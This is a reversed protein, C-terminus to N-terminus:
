SVHVATIANEIFLNVTGSTFHNFTVAADGSLGDGVQTGASVWSNLVHSVNVTDTADGRIYLSQSTNMAAVSTDDLNLTGGSDLLLDIKEINKVSVGAVGSAQTIDLLNMNEIELSNFGGGGDLVNNDAPTFLAQNNVLLVDNGAGGLLQNNTATVMSLIETGGAGANFDGNLNINLLLSLTDSSGLSGDLINHSVNLETMIATAGAEAGNKGAGGNATSANATAEISLNDIGTGGTLINGQSMLDGGVVAEASISTGSAAFNAFFNGDGGTATADITMTTDAAGHETMHNGQVEAFAGTATGGPTIPPGNDYGSVGGTFAGKGGHALDTIQMIDSAGAAGYGDFHNGNIEADASTAVGGNLAENAYLGALSSGGEADANISMTGGAAGDSLMNADVLTQASIAESSAGDAVDAGTNVTSGDWPTSGANGGQAFAKIGITDASATSASALTNGDIDVQASIATCGASAYNGFTGGANGGFAKGEINVSQGGSGAGADLINSSVLSEANIQTGSTTNVNGTGTSEGGTAHATVAITDNGAMGLITVSSIVAHATTVTAGGGAETDTVTDSLKDDFNSGQLVDFNGFLTIDGAGGTSQAVGLVGLDITVGAHIDLFSLTTMGTGALIQYMGTGSNVGSYITETGSGATLIYDGAGTDNGGILVDTGSGGTLSYSVGSSEGGILVNNGSSGATSLEYTATPGDNNGGILLNNGAGGSIAYDTGQIVNGGILIDEGSTGQLSYSGGGPANLDGGIMIANGAAATVAELGAVLTSIGNYLVYGFNTGMLSPLSNFAINPISSVPATISGPLSSSTNGVILDQGDYTKAAPSQASVLIGGLNAFPDAGPAELQFMYNMLSGGNFAANVAAATGAGDLFSRVDAVLVDQHYQATDNVDLQQDPTGGDVLTGGDRGSTGDFLHKGTNSVFLNTGGGGSFYYQDFSNGAANAGAILVDNGQAGVMYYIGTGTNAGGELISNGVVLPVPSYGGQANDTAAVYYFNGANNGGILVNSGGEGIVFYGYESGTSLNNGGLIIDNGGNGQLVYYQTNANYEGGVILAGEPGPLSAIWEDSTPDVAGNYLLYTHPDGFQILDVSSTENATPTLVTNVIASVNAAILDTGDIAGNNVGQVQIGSTLSLNYNFLQSNAALVAIGLEAASDTSVGAIFDRAVTNGDMNKAGGLVDASYIATNGEGPGAGYIMDNGLGGTVSDGPNVVFVDNTDTGNITVDLTTSVPTATLDDSETIGYTFHLTLTEGAPLFDFANNKILDVSGDANIILEAAMPSAENNLVGTPTISFHAIEGAGLAMPAVTVDGAYVNNLGDLGAGAFTRGIFAAQVVAETDLPDVNTDNALVNGLLLTASTVTDDASFSDPNAVPLPDTVDFTITNTAIPDGANYIDLNKADITVVYIGAEATITGTINGKGDISLGAPLHNSPDVTISLPDDSTFLSSAAINISNNEAQTVTIPANTAIENSADNVQLSFSETASKGPDSANAPDTNTATVMVTYSGIQPDDPNGTIVGTNPNITFGSPLGTASFVLADDTEIHSFYTSVNLSYPTGETATQPLIPTATVVDVIDHVTLQFSNTASKHADFQNAPDTNTATLHITATGIQPDDPTGSIIGTVPNYHLWSPLGSLSLTDGVDTHSFLQSINISFLSGETASQPALTLPTVVETVDKQVLLTMVEKFGCQIITETYDLYTAGAFGEYSHFTWGTGMNIVDFAGAKVIMTDITHTISNVEKTFDDVGLANIDLTNHQALTSTNTFNNTLDLEDFGTVVPGSHCVGGLLNVTQGTGKVDLIDTGTGGAYLLDNSHFVV